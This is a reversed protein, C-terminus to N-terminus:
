NRWRYQLLSGKENLNYILRDTKLTMKSDTLRVDEEVIAIRSDGDYDLHQGWLNLTDRQRIYINGFAEIRNQNEYFWASDCDMYVNDQKFRVNGICRQYKGVDRDYVLENAQLIEIRTGKVNSKTKSTDTQALIQTCLIM